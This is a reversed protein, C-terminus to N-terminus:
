HQQPRAEARATTDCGPCLVVARSANWSEGYQLQRGAQTRSTRAESGTQVRAEEPKVITVPVHSLRVVRGSVSRGVINAITGARRSGMVIKTCGREAANRVIAEAPAGFVVASTHQFSHRDLLSKADRLAREGASRRLDTVLKASALVSVDGAM